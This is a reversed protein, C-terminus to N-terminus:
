SLRNVLQEVGATFDAPDIGSGWFCILDTELAGCIHTSLGVGAQVADSLGAVHVTTFDPVDAQVTSATEQLFAKTAWGGDPLVAVEVARADESAYSGWAARIVGTASETTGGIFEQPGSVVTGDDIILGFWPGVTAFDLSELESADVTGHPASSPAVKLNSVAAQASDLLSSFYGRATLEDVGVLSAYLIGSVGSGQVDDNCSVGTPTTACGVGSAPGELELQSSVPILVLTMAGAPPTSAQWTCSVAGAQAAVASGFEVVGDLVPETFGLEGAIPVLQACGAAIRAEPRSAVPTIADPTSPAAPTPPPAETSTPTSCGAIALAPLLILCILSRRRRM